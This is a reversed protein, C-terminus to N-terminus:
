NGINTPTSTALSASVLLLRFLSGGELNSGCRRGLFALAPLSLVSRGGVGELALPVVEGFPVECSSAFLITDESAFGGVDAVSTGGEVFAGNAMTDIGDGGEADTDEGCREEITGVEGIRDGGVSCIRGLSVVSSNPITEGEEV